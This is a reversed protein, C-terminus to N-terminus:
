LHGSYFQGKNAGVLGEVGRHWMGLDAIQRHFVVATWDMDQETPISEM